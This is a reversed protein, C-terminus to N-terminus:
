RWKKRRAEQRIAVYRRREGTIIRRITLREKGGLRETRIWERAKWDRLVRQRTYGLEKLWKDFYTSLIFLDGNDGYFVREDNNIDFGKKSHAELDSQFEVVKDLVDDLAKEAVTQHPEKLLTQKVKNVDALTSDFALDESDGLARRLYYGGTGIISLLNMKSGGVERADTEPHEKPEGVHTELHEKMEHFRARIGPIGDDIMLEIIKPGIHGYNEDTVTYIEQAFSDDLLEPCFLQLTRNEIGTWKAGSLDEEGTLIALTHWHSLAQLGGQKRGRGKGKGGSLMYVLNDIFRESTAAQREDIGLPLDSLLAAVREMAVTTAFATTKLDRPNGWLALGLHLLATKGIGSEGYVYLLSPRQGLLKILPAAVFADVIFRAHSENPQPLHQWLNKWTAEEGRPNYSTILRKEEEGLPIFKCAGGIAHEGILFVPKNRTRVWGIHTSARKPRLRDYNTAEFAALAKIVRTANESTVPAGWAALNILNRRDFVENRRLVANEWQQGDRWIVETWLQRNERYQKGLAIFRHAVVEETQGGKTPIMRCLRGEHLIYPSPIIFQTGDYSFNREGQGPFVPAKHLPCNACAKEIESVKLGRIYSCSFSRYKEHDKAYKLQDLLQKQRKLITNYTGSATFNKVLPRTWDLFTEERMGTAAAFGGLVMAIRNFMGPRQEFDGRALVNLCPPIEDGLASLAIEPKNEFAARAEVEKKVRLFLKNLERSPKQDSKGVEPWVFDPRPTKALEIIKAIPMALEEGTLPIKHCGNQRPINPLRWMRGKGGSYVNHDLTMLDEAIVEAMARYIEHLRPHGKEIEPSIFISDITVHFGRHGSFWVQFGEPPLGYDLILRKRLERTDVWAPRPPDEESDFDFYLPGRRLVSAANEDTIPDSVALITLYAAGQRRARALAKEPILEWKQKKDTTYYHWWRTVPQSKENGKVDTGNLTVSPTSINQPAAKALPKEKENPM